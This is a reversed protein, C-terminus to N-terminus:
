SGTAICPLIVRFTTGRGLTSDIQVRGGALEVGSRVIALGLGTGQNRAKTTFFPEFIQELLAPEIGTGTDIVELVVTAGPRSGSEGNGATVSVIVPGGAPMADRANAVLNILIRELQLPDIFVRGTDPGLRPDIPHRPGATQLLHPLLQRVVTPVDLATPRATQNGSLAM